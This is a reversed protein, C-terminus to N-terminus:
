KDRQLLPDVYPKMKRQMRFIKHRLYPLRRSPIPLDMIRILYDAVRKHDFWKGPRNDHLFPEDLYQRRLSEDQDVQLIYDIAKESSQFDHLNIFSKTNFDEAIRRNGWYIPICGCRMASVIKETTYGPWDQNEITIVFRYNRYFDKLDPARYGLNNMFSGGSDVHRRAHLQKFFVARRKTRFENMNSAVFACFRRDENLIKDSYGEGKTLEDPRSTLAYFPLRLARPHDTHLFILGGCQTNFDPWSNEIAVLISRCQSARPDPPDTDSVFLLDPDEEGYEVEFATDLARGLIDNWRTVGPTFAVKM